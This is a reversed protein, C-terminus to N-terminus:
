MAAAPVVVPITADQPHPLVLCDAGFQEALLAPTLVARPPGIRRLRGCAVVALRDAYRAALNLDHLVAVVGIGTAALGRAIALLRHQQALDLSATPEDLLLYRDGGGDGPAPALQALARAFHIRAQEGGSLTPFLRDALGGVGVSALASDTALEREPDRGLGARGLRVVERARFPFVLRTAQPLVARRRALRRLGHEALAVGDLRAAGHDPVIEGALLRMITSKGAGNPGVLALLEGPRATLSVGAVIGRWGAEDLTLM